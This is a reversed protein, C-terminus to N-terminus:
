LNCQPNPMVLVIREFKESRDEAMEAAVRCVMERLGDSVDAATAVVPMM